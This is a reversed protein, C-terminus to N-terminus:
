EKAKVTLRDDVSVVGKVSKVIEVAKQRMPESKVRGLLTVVGKKVEVNVRFARVERSRTLKLKIRTQIASDDTFEGVTRSSGDKYSQCGGAILMVAIGALLLRAFNVGLRAIEIPFGCELIYHSKDPVGFMVFCVM